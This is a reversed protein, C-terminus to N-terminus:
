GKKNIERNIESKVEDVFSTFENALSGFIGRSTTKPKKKYSSQSGKRTFEEQRRTYNDRHENKMLEINKPSENISGDKIRILAELEPAYKPKM